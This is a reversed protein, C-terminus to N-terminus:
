KCYNISACLPSGPSSAIYGSYVDGHDMTSMIVVKLRMMVMIITSMIMETTNMIEMVVRKIIM